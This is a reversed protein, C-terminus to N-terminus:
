TRAGTPPTAVEWSAEVSDNGLVDRLQSDRTAEDSSCRELVEKTCITSVVDGELIQINGTGDDAVVTALRPGALLVLSGPVFSSQNDRSAASRERADDSGLEVPGECRGGTRALHKLHDLTAQRAIPNPRVEARFKKLSDLETM